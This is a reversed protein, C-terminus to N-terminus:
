ALNVQVWVVPGLGRFEQTLIVQSERGGVMVLSESTFLAATGTGDPQAPLVQLSVESVVEDGASNRVLKREVDARCDVTRTPLYDPGSSTEGAYTRVTVTDGTLM